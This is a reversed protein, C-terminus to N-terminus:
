AHESYRLLQVQEQSERISSKISQIINNLSNIQDLELVMIRSLYEKHVRREEDTSSPLTGLQSLKQERWAIFHNIEGWERRRIAAQLEESRAIYDLYFAEM